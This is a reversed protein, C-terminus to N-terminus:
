VAAKDVDVSVTNLKAKITEWQEPTPSNGALGAQLGDIWAKFEALTM